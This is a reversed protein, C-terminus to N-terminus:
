GNLHQRVDDVLAAAGPNRAFTGLMWKWYLRHKTAFYSLWRLDQEVQLRNSFDLLHYKVLREGVDMAVSAAQPQPFGAARLDAYKREFERQALQGRNWKNATMLTSVW